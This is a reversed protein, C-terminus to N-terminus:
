SMEKKKISQFWPVQKEIMQCIKKMWCEKVLNRMMEEEVHDSAATIEVKVKSKGTTMAKIAITIEAHSIREMPEEVMDANTMLDWNNEENMFKELQERWNRKRDIASM